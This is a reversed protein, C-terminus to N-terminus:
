APVPTRFEPWQVPEDWGTAIPAAITVDGHLEEGLRAPSAARRTADSACRGFVLATLTRHQCPSTRQIAWAGLGRTIQREAEDTGERIQMATRLTNPLATM